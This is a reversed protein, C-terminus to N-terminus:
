GTCRNGNNDSVGLSSEIWGGCDISEQVSSGAFPQSSPKRISKIAAIVFDFGKVYTPM